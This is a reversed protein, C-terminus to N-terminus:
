PARNSLWELLKAYLSEPLVPKAIFDDMGAQLCAAKSDAFANATMALIPTNEQRPILRILRTAELGNMIPMQMDMLILAFDHDAALKVAESGDNAGVTVLGVDDLIATAIERNIPEDEVLLIRAGQHNRKLMEEAQTHHNPLTAVDEGDNKKLRITFWFTSGAGLTSEVGADGGMIKALKQTIALGLGTGGYKRTSSSDAQEFATFLKPMVEKPIGIGTDQVEFRITSTVTDEEVCRARLTISGSNTFKVANGVYNLLAQQIRTVDGRFVVPPTSDEIRLTLNKAVIQGHLMTAVQDILSRVSVRTEELVFKGAEIKSIDLVDNIIGNLHSSASQLKALQEDQKANLGGRQILHAMGNIAHLPTRIEHSMNALFASKAINAAEAAEKALLAEQAKKLQTIDTTLEIFGSIAGGDADPIYQSLCALAGGNKLVITQEFSQRTGELVSHFYQALEAANSPYVESFTKGEINNGEPLWESFRGNAFRCIGQTDWYAVLSPVNSAISALLRSKEDLRREAAVLDTMEVFSVVIGALCKDLDYYPSVKRMFVGGDSTTVQSLITTAYSKVQELEDNINDDRVRSTIHRIDRGVDQPILNFMRTAEPTFLRIAGDVTLFVSGVNTAKILNHLDASITNLELIKAEHEANVSYLEENVSHLEENTSQLEENSALLEENSAQLEENSTELEEVTAQLSEKTYQLEQELQKIRSNVEEQYVFVQPPGDIPKPEDELEFRVMLFMVGSTKDEVPDISVRVQRSDIDNVAPMHVHQYVVSERRKLANQIASAVAVRLEGELLAVLDNTTRGTPFHLYESVQGFVHVIERRDNILVGQTVYKALLIDYARGLAADASTPRLHRHSSLVPKTLDLPIRIDSKKRFVKWQREIIEFEGALEGLGESPGLFLVGQHKLAFHFASLARLQAQPQFYILLNRCTVLDIKTFPPDKILNHASFILMKRLRASVRFTGNGQDIFFLERRHPPVDELSSAPYVGDAAFDLSDRHMDSAFIRVMPVQGRAEFAEIFLMALSYPEEGTACGPVWVRIEQGAPIVDLLAPIIQKEIYDFAEPDRFFRTVGILLDKYLHDLEAPDQMIKECYDELSILSCLNIRREIRRTITAPKYSGFDIDYEEHLKEIITSMAGTPADGQISTNGGSFQMKPDARYRLLAEPMEEPALTADVCGTLIANRPMGDFKATTESQALVLGGQEHVDRIGGSGDAGTGSLVIAVARETRAIALSRFFVNIPLHLSQETSRELTRLINGELVLEKRPPLLYVSNPRIEIPEEVLHISMATYRHLLEEMMSKYDPSLHQIVVFAMGTDSPLAKFFRELAELGGASAGIGVVFFADDAPQNAHERTNDLSLDGLEHEIM